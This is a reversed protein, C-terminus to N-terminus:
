EPKSLLNNKQPQFFDEVIANVLDDLEKQLGAVDRNGPAACLETYYKIKPETGSTRMTAVGGNSFSFTIMQSSTSSPLVAKNDAQSSDYGTTLDRVATIAVGGCQRPYSVDEQNGYHRLRDFMARIVAGRLCCHTTTVVHHEERGPIIDDGLSPQRVQAGDKDLVALGCMYEQLVVLALPSVGM